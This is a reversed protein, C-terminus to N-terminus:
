TPTLPMQTQRGKSEWTGERHIGSGAPGAATPRPDGVLCARQPARAGRFTEHEGVRRCSPKRKTVPTSQLGSSDAPVPRSPCLLLLVPRSPRPRPRVDDRRASRGDQGRGLTPELAHALTRPGLARGCATGKSHTKTFCTSRNAEPTTPCSDDTARHSYPASGAASTMPTPTSM